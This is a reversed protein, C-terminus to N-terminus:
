ALGLSELVALGNEAMAIGAGVARPQAVREVLAVRAGARALLLAAASGGTGAGIVIIHLDHLDMSTVRTPPCSPSPRDQRCGGREGAKHGGVHARCRRPSASWVWGSGTMRLAAREAIAIAITVSRGNGLASAWAVAGEARRLRWSSRTARKASHRWNWCGLTTFPM